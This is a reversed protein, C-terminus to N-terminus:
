KREKAEQRVDHEFHKTESILVSTLAVLAILNPIAMLGNFTDALTWVLNLDIAAGPIVCLAFLVRYPMVAKTGFLYEACKEGYFAWALMTTYAFLVLAVTLIYHGGTISKSFAAIAMASGQLLMGDADRMQTAGSVILVLATVTCVFVVAILGGTMMITAQRAPSDTRAAAAAISSIGIGAETTFIGRAVGVQIAAIIGSGAAGGVAAQPTLAAEFIAMFAAPVKDAYELIIWLGGAMYFLAMFPVIISAVRGIARVGGLVVASVLVALIVGTFWPNVDWVNDIADAISNAQVLNGTGIAALTGFIAFTIALWRWGLGREIYEMPGGIQEGNADEVRFKVALLSEAYKLAMGVLATVWMWFIAGVGGLTIGTAVGVISGTGIAGALTTMLAELHSIDGKARKPQATWSQRLGYALYRFQVGKLVFTLYIGTGLLLLLLPIGWVFSHLLTLYGQVKDM